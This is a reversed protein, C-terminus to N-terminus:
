PNDNDKSDVTYFAVYAGIWGLPTGILIGVLTESLLTQDFFWDSIFLCAIIGIVIILVGVLLIIRELKMINKHRWNPFFLCAIIGVFIFIAGIMLQSFICFIIGIAISIVGIILIIRKTNM